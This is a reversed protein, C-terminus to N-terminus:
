KINSGTLEEQMMPEMAFDRVAVRAKVGHAHAAPIAAPCLFTAEYVIKLSGPLGPAPAPSSSVPSFAFSAVSRQEMRVM